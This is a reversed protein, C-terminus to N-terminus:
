CTVALRRVGAVMEYQVRKFGRISADDWLIEFQVTLLVKCGDWCRHASSDLEFGIVM